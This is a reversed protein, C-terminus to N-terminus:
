TNWPAVPCKSECLEPSHCVPCPWVTECLEHVARQVRKDWVISDPVPWFGQLGRCPIPEDFAIARKIEYGYPGSFWPDEHRDFVRGTLLMLGVLGGGEVFGVETVGMIRGVANAYTDSWKKGAHVVVVTEGSRMARPLNTPRNEIRKTGSVIAWSMPQILTLARM